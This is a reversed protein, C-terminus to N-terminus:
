HSVVLKRTVTEGDYEMTIFYVGDSWSQTDFNLRHIGETFPQQSRNEVLQGVVNYVQVRVNKPEDFYFPLATFESSPNPALHGIVTQGPVPMEGSGITASTQPLDTKRFCFDDIAWGADEVDYDSGFRFRFVVKIGPNAFQLVQQALTWGETDGSWGPNIQDLSTVFPDSYWDRANPATIPTVANGIPFWTFGGDDTYEVNGGDHFKESQMWHYFIMEYNQASDILFVPTYLASNDLRGYNASLDTMWARSGQYASDFQVPTGNEWSTEGESFVLANNTIWPTINPNTGEFDNCYSSDATPTNQMDIEDLISITLCLTDDEMFDDTAGNPNSTIICVEHPGSTVMSAPWIFPVTDRESPSCRGRPQDYNYNEDLYDKGGQGDDCFDVSDCDARLMLRRFSHSFKSGIQVGDIFVEIDVDTLLRGGTNIITYELQQDVEPFPIPNLTRINQPSASNQPPVYVEFDDIGWGGGEIGQMAPDSRLTYRVSLPRAVQNFSNLPFMTYVWQGNTSNVFAPDGSFLDASPTGYQSGYWNCGLNAAQLGAGLVSFGTGDRFTVAAAAGFDQSGVNANAGLDLNQYFRLEANSISDLDFGFISPANLDEDQGALYKGDM